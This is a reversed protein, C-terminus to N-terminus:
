LLLYAISKADLTECPGFSIGQDQAEKNCAQAWFSSFNMSKSPFAVIYELQFAVEFFIFSSLLFFFFLGFTIFVNYAWIQSLPTSYRQTCELSLGLSYSSLMITFHVLAWIFYLALNMPAFHTIKTILDKNFHVSLSELFM